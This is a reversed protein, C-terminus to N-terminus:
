HLYQLNLKQLFYIVLMRGHSPFLSSFCRRPPDFYKSKPSPNTNYIPYIKSLPILFNPFMIVFKM